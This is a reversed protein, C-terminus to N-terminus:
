NFVPDLKSLFIAASLIDACGGPSINKQIFCKDMDFLDNM